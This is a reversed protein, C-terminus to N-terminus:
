AVERKKAQELAWADLESDIYRSIRGLKVAKPFQGSRELKYHTSRSLNFRKRVMTGTSFTEAM